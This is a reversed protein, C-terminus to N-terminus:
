NRTGRKEVGRGYNKSLEKRMLSMCNLANGEFKRYTRTKEYVYHSVGSDEPASRAWGPANWLRRNLLHARKAGPHNGAASLKDAFEETGGVSPGSVQCRVGSVQCRDEWYAEPHAKFRAFGQFNTDFIAFGVCKGRFFREFNMYNTRSERTKLLMGAKFTVFFNKECVTPGFPTRGTTPVPEGGL